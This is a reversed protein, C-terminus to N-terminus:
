KLRFGTIGLVTNWFIARSANDSRFEASHWVHASYPLGHMQQQLHTDPPWVSHMDVQRATTFTGGVDAQAGLAHCRGEDCYAFIEYTNTPFNLPTQFVIGERYFGNAVNWGWGNDPKMDQDTTWGLAYTELAYDNTNYFNVYTGAGATANFYCPSSNTWYHAYCNPTYSDFSGLSRTPANPDYSHAPLAAQM